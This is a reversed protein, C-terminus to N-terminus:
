AKADPVGRRQLEPSAGAWEEAATLLDAGTLAGPNLVTELRRSMAETIFKRAQRGDAGDLLAAVRLLPASEALEGLAPYHTAFSRLTAALIQAVAPVTPLPVLIATDSRSLFASDLSDTFNSTAVTLLHPHGAANDDLATLVADTARHVDAPNASLSAASRAVTMSEVEDLVVVTPMGDDALQPVHEALLETVRQQSLGHDASMLGHPSIEILRVQNGSVYEALEGALGRALTTKGTGPPGYLTILGHLATVEFPMRLRLSLSLLAQHILRDKIGQDLVLVDWCRGQQGAPVVAARTVCEEVKM